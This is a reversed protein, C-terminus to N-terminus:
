SGSGEGSATPIEEEIPEPLMARWEAAKANYGRDPEAEHWTDYPDALANIVKITREHDAGLAAM